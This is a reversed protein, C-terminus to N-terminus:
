EHKAAERREASLKKQFASETRFSRGRGRRRASFGAGCLRSGYNAMSSVCIWCAASTSGLAPMPHRIWVARRAWAPERRLETREMLEM